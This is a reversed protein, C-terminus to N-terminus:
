NNSRRKGLGKWHKTAYILHYIVANNRGRIEFRVTYPAGGIEILSEVYCDILFQRQQSKEREQYGRWLDSGFLNDLTERIKANKRGKFRNVFGSMFNVLVESRPQDLIESIKTM